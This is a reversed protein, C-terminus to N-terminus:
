KQSDEALRLGWSAAEDMPNIALAAKFSVEAAKYNYDKMYGEVVDTNDIVNLIGNNRLILNNLVIEHELGDEWIFNIKINNIKKLVINMDEKELEM